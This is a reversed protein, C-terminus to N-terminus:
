RVPEAAIATQTHDAAAGTELGNLFEVLRDTAAKWSYRGAARLGGERVRDRLNTDLILSQVNRFMAEVDGPAATMCNEGHAAYEEVGSVLTTALACGCAMAELPVAPFGEYLSPYIFVDTQQFM